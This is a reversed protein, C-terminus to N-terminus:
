DGVPYLMLVPKGDKPDDPHVIDLRDWAEFEEPDDVTYKGVEFGCLPSLDSGYSTPLLVEATPDEKSLLEMLHKVNM